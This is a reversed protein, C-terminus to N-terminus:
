RLLRKHNYQKNFHNKGQDKAESSIVARNIMSANTAFLEPDTLTKGSDTQWNKEELDTEVGKRASKINKYFEPIPKGSNTGYTVAGIPALGSDRALIFDKWIKINDLVMGARVLMVAVENNMDEIWFKAIVNRFLILNMFIKFKREEM